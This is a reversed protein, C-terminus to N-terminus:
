LVCVCVCLSVGLCVRSLPPVCVCVGWVSASAGVVEYHRMLPEEGANTYVHDEHLSIVYRFRCRLTPASREGAFRVCNDSTVQTARSAPGAHVGEGDDEEDEERAAAPPRLSVTSQLDDELAEPAFGPPHNWRITVTVSPEVRTGVSTVDVM